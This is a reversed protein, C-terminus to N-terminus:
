YEKKIEEKLRQEHKKKYKKPTHVGVGRRVESLYGDAKGPRKQQLERGKLTEKM